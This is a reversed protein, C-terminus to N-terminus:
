DEPDIFGQCINLINEFPPFVELNKHNSNLFFNSIEFLHRAFMM